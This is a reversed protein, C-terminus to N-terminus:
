YKASYLDRKGGSPFGTSAFRMKYFMRRLQWEIFHHFGDPPM